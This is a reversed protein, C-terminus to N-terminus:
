PKKILVRQKDNDVSVDAVNVAELYKIFSQWNGAEFSGTIRLENLESHVIVMKVDNFLNFDEVVDSLSSSEFILRRDQWATAAETNVDAVSIARSQFNVTAQQGETLVVSQFEHEPDKVVNSPESDHNVQVVGEVVTVAMNKHRRRVNFQTGIAQVVMQNTRVRFPRGPDKSVSFLAEGQTITIDRYDGNFSVELRTRANLAVTSGDELSHSALEGAGTQYITSSPPVFWTLMIVAMLISAAVAFKFWLRATVASSRHEFKRDTESSLNAFLEVVNEDGQVRTASRIIDEIDPDPGLAVCDGWLTAVQLYEEVHVKSARLWQAFATREHETHEPDQMCTLWHAAEDIIRQRYQTHKYDTM